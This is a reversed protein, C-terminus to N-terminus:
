PNATRVSDHQDLKRKARKGAFWGIAAVVIAILIFVFGWIVLGALSGIFAGAGEAGEAESSRLVLPLYFLVPTLILELALVYLGASVAASPLPKQYLYYAAAVFAVLFAIGSVGLTATAWAAVGGILLGLVVATIALGWSVNRIRSTSKRRDEVTTSRDADANPNDHSPM